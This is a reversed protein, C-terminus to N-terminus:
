LWACPPGVAEVPSADLMSAVLRQGRCWRGFPRVGHSEEGEALGHGPGQGGDEERPAARGHGAVELVRRAARAARGGGGDRAGGHLVHEVAVDLDLGAVGGVVLGVGGRDRQGARAGAGSLSATVTLSPVTVMEAAPM